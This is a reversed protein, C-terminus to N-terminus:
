RAKLLSTRGGCRLLDLYSVQPKKPLPKEGVKPRITKESEKKGNIEQLLCKREKRTLDYEKLV